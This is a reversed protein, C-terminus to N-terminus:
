DLLLRCSPSPRRVAALERVMRYKERFDNSDLSFSKKLGTANGLVYTALEKDRVRGKYGSWKFGELSSLLSAPVSSPRKWCNPIESSPLGRCYHHNTLTLFRLKPSDQLMQTLLDWWGPTCTCIKLDVLHRVIIESPNMVEPLSLCLYLGRVWSLKRLYKQAVSKNSTGIRAMVLDPMKRRSDLLVYNSVFFYKLPAKIVNSSGKGFMEDFKKEFFHRGRLSSVDATYEITHGAMHITCDGDVNPRALSLEELNPCGYILRLVSTKDAFGPSRLYLKKLCPLCVALPVDVLVCDKINLLLSELTECTYLSRPLRFSREEAYAISIELERMRRSVAIDIWLGVDVDRCELNLNLNKLVLRELVPGNHKLLSRYVFQTFRQNQSRCCYELKPVSRWLYRWRKSLRSTVIVDKTPIFSLIQLLLHDPCQSIIDM